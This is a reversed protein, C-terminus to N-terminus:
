PSPNLLQSVFRLDDALLAAPSDPNRPAYDAHQAVVVQGATTTWATSQWMCNDQVLATALVDADSSAGVLVLANAVADVADLTADADSVIPILLLLRRAWAVTHAEAGDAAIRDLETWSLGPGRQHGDLSCIEVWRSEARDAILYDVGEDGRYNRYVVFMRLRPTDVVFYPWNAHDSLEAKYFELAASESTFAHEVLDPEVVGQGIFHSAWFVSRDLYSQGDVLAVPGADALSRLYAEVVGM